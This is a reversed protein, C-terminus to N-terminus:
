RRGDNEEKEWQSLIYEAYLRAIPQGSVEEILRFHANSNVETILYGEDGQLLDVGAYELGLAASAREALSILEPTLSIKEGRGGLEANARFEGERTAVRKMAAVAKGGITIVRIDSAGCEVYKQYLHPEKIWEARLARLEESTRCLRVERGFAGHCKKVVVPHGLTEEVRRLFDPADEGAFCLPSPITEPQRLGAEALRIHTLMKDDSLRISEASNFLRVGAKELMKALAYDKDLYVAFDLPEGLFIGREAVRLDLRDISLLPASLGVRGLADSIKAAGEDGGRWYANVIVAGKYKNSIM